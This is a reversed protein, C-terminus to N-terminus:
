PSSRRRRLIAMFSRTELEARSLGTAAAEAETIAGCNLGRLFYNLLAQGTAADDFVDGVLTAQAAQGIFNKLRATAQSLGELFFAYVAAYRTVLQAPHLDWGQYFGSRLSHRVDNYHLRWAAHIARRNLKEETEWIIDHSEGATPVPLINTAGDSLWVGTGGLGIQMLHRATDCVPHRMGQHAATVGCSATYDYVGFHAARVRGGGAAVLRPLAARGEADVLSQHTEVMIEFVLSGAALGLSSELATLVDVLAAVQDASTIKPLTTYFREPLRGARDVLTGLFLDLTRLSRRHLEESLPKIRIGVFPPLTGAALGEAV